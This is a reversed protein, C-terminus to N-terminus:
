LKTGAPQANLSRRGIGYRSIGRNALLMNREFTVNWSYMLFAAAFDRM